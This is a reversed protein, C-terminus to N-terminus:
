CNVHAMAFSDCKQVRYYMYGHVLSCVNVWPAFIGIIHMLDTGRALPLLPSHCKVLADYKEAYYPTNRLISDVIDYYTWETKM